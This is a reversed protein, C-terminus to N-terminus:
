LPFFINSRSEIKLLMTTTKERERERERERKHKANELKKTFQKKLEDLDKSYTRRGM